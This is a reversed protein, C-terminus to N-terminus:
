KNELVAIGGRPIFPLAVTLHFTKSTALDLREQVLDSGAGRRRRSTQSVLSAKRLYQKMQKEGANTTEKSGVIKYAQNILNPVLDSRSLYQQPNTHTRSHTKSYGVRAPFVANKGM